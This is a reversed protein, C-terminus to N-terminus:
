PYLVVSLDRSVDTSIPLGYRPVIVGSYDSEGAIRCM